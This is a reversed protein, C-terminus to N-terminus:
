ENDGSDGSDGSFIKERRKADSQGADFGGEDGGFGFANTGGSRLDRQKRKNDAERQKRQDEEKKWVKLDEEAEEALKSQQSENGAIKNAKKM